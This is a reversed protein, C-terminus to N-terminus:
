TPETTAVLPFGQARALSRVQEVYLEAREQPCVAVTACGTFHVLLMLAEAEPKPKAFLTMILHVVFEMTTVEDNHLIVRWPPSVRVDTVVDPEKTPARTGGM